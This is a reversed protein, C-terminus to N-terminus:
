RTPACSRGGRPCSKAASAGSRDRRDQEAGRGRSRDGAVYTPAHATVPVSTSNSRHAGGGDFLSHVGRERLTSSGSIWLGIVSRPMTLSTATPASPIACPRRRGSRRPSGSARRRDRCPDGRGDPLHRADAAHADLQVHHAVLLAGRQAAAQAAVRRLRHDRERLRARQGADVAHRRALAADALRRDRDVQGRRHGGAAQRDAHDVGVDVAVRHRAHEARASRGVLTSLMIMGGCACPTFTIEIPM